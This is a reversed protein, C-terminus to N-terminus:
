NLVPFVKDKDTRFGALTLSWTELGYLFRLLIKRPCLKVALRICHLLHKSTVYVIFFQVAFQIESNVHM